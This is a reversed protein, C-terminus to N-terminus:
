HQRNHINHTEVDAVAEAIEAEVVTVAEVVIEVAVVIVVRVSKAAVRHVRVVLQQLRDSTQHFIV